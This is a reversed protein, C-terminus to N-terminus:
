QANWLIEYTESDVLPSGTTQQAKQIIQDATIWKASTKGLYFLRVVSKEERALDVRFRASTQM